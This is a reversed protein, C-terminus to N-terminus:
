DVVLYCFTPTPKGVEVKKTPPTFVFLLLRRSSKTKVGGVFFTSTPFGV